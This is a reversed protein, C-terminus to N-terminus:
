IHTEQTGKWGQQLLIEKLMARLEERDKQTNLPLAYDPPLFTSKQRLYVELNADSIDEREKLRKIIEEEEAWALLFVAQPFKERVLSRQWEELFTADLVVDKGDKVMEEARRLMEGYVKRTWEPAYIGEGYGLSLKQDINIGAMEKRLKDSRLWEFGFDEQLIRALFSKGSGSLGMLVVIM